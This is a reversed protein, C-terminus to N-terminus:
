RCGHRKRSSRPCIATCGIALGNFQEVLRDGLGESGGFDEDLDVCDREVEAVDGHDGVTVWDFDDALAHRAGVGRCGNQM